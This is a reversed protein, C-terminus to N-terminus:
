MVIEALKSKPAQKKTISSHSSGINTKLVAGKKM